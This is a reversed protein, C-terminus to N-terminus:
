WRRRGSICCRRGPGAALHAASACGALRRALRVQGAHGAPWGSRASAPREALSPWGAMYLLGTDASRGQASGCTARRTMATSFAVSRGIGRRTLPQQTEAAAALASHHRAGGASAIGAGLAHLEKRPPRVREPRRGEPAGGGAQACPRVLLLNIRAPRHEPASAASASTSGSRRGPAEARLAPDTLADFLVM